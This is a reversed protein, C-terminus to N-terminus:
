KKESLAKALPSKYKLNYERILNDMAEIEWKNLTYKGSQLYDLTNRIQWMCSTAVADSVAIAEDLTLDTMKKLVRDKSDTVKRIKKPVTPSM